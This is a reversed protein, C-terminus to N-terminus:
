ALPEGKPLATTRGVFGARAATENHRDAGDATDETPVNKAVMPRGSFTPSWLWLWRKMAEGDGM